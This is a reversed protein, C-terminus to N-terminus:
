SKSRLINQIQSKQTRVRQELPIPKCTPKPIGTPWEICGKIERTVHPNMKLRGDRKEHDSSPSNAKDLKSLEVSNAGRSELFLHVMENYREELKAREEKREKKEEEYRAMFQKWCLRAEGLKQTLKENLSEMRMGRRRERSLKEKLDDVAARIKQREEQINELYREVRKESSKQAAKLKVISRQARHLEEVLMTVISDSDGVLTAEQQQMPSLLERILGNRSRLVTIPKKELSDKTASGKNSSLEPISSAVAHNSVDMFRLQWLAAALKRATIDTNPFRRGFNVSSTYGSSYHKNNNSLVIGRHLASTLASNRHKRRPSFTNSAM